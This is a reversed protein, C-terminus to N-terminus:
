GVAKWIYKEMMVFAAAVSKRKHVVIRCIDYTKPRFFLFISISFCLQLLLQSLTM